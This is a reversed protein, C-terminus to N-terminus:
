RSYEQVTHAACDACTQIHLATETQNGSALIVALAACKLASATAAGAIRSRAGM